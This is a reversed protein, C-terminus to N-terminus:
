ERGTERMWRDILKAGLQEARIDQMPPSDAACSGIRALYQEDSQWTQKCQRCFIVGKALKVLDHRMLNM